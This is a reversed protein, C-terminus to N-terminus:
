EEAEDRQLTKTGRVDRGRFFKIQGAAPNKERVVGERDEGVGKRRVRKRPTRRDQHPARDRNTGDRQRDPTKATADRVASPGFGDADTGRPKRGVRLSRSAARRFVTGSTIARSKRIRKEPM